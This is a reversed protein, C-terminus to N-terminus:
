IIEIVFQGGRLKYVPKYKLPYLSIFDLLARYEHDAKTLTFFDDFIILDGAKLLPAFHILTFLSANYLDVDIHIIKRVGTDNYQKLFVPLTDQILGVLFDVRKDNIIDPLKGQASFSGKKVSGWDEPLGEFTDFGWFLSKSNKNNECWRKIIQGWLVGFEFFHIETEPNLHSSPLFEHLKFRDNTYLTAGCNNYYTENKVAYGAVILNRSLFTSQNKSGARLLVYILKKIIKKM